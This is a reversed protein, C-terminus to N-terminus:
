TIRTLVSFAHSSRGAVRVTGRSRVVGGVNVQVELGVPSILYHGVDILAVAGLMRGHHAVDVGILPATRHAIHRACQSKSGLIYIPDGLPRAFIFRIGCLQLFFPGHHELQGRLQDARRPMKGHMDAPHQDGRLRQHFNHGQFAGRFFPDDDRLPVLVADLIRTEDLDVQKAQPREIGDALGARQNRLLM